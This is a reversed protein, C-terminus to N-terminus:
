ISDNKMAEGLWLLRKRFAEAKETDQAKHLLVPIDDQGGVIGIDAEEQAEHM